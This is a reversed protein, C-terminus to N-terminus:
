DRRSGAAKLYAIIQILEEEAVRGQYSPMIPQYGAVIKAAPQLISERLYNEDAMVERGDTLQVKRGYLGELLPARQLTGEQHCSRCGMSDILAKGADVPSGQAASGALWDQFAAPEMAFVEAMMSAHGTGCYQSCFLHYQGARTPEFWLSTYRMPLVDYKIRFAPISVDHIVDQSVMILKVPQHLPLHLENIERRGSPHQFKWMWQKGVVYIEYAGAPAESFQRLYLRAGWVFFGMLIVLPIVTWTIELRMDTKVRPPPNPRKKRRYRMAFFFIAGAILVTFFLSVACLSFLLLDVQGAWRAAQAPMWTFEPANM